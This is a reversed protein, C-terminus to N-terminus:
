GAGSFSGTEAIAIFANLNALDMATNWNTIWLM